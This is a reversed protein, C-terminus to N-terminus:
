YGKCVSWLDVVHAETCNDCSQSDSKYSSSFVGKTIMNDFIIVVFPLIRVEISLYLRVVLVCRHVAFSFEDTDAAPDIFHHKIAAGLVKSHSCITRSPPDTVGVAAVALVTQPLIRVHLSVHRFCLRLSLTEGVSTCEVSLFLTRVGTECSLIGDPILINLTQSKTAGLSELLWTDMPMRPPKTSPTLTKLDQVQNQSSLKKM